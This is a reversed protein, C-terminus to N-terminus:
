RRWALDLREVRIDSKRPPLSLTQLEIPASVALAATKESLEGELRALKEKQEALEEEARSLDGRERSARTASRATRSARKVNTVSGLKRGFLAGALTLGFDVATDLARGQFESSEREVRSEARRIAEEVRALEPAYRKKLKELEEDRKERLRHSIRARFDAESENPRSTMRLAKSELLTARRERYLYEKLSKEWAPYSKPDAAAPPLEAFRAGSDPESSPTSSADSSRGWDPEGSTEEFPTLWDVKEWYDIGQSASVYHVQATSLVAPQYVQTESGLFCEVISPPLHPREGGIGPAPAKTAAAPALPSEPRPSAGLKKMQELTLPGRLYSLAWRTQFVIPRDEHVNQMLFVRKDLSSLIEETKRRDFKGSASALGELLRERDRATQLRGLFWTGINALGKYDLDVPNQTALVVGLGFARAQKLLTLM